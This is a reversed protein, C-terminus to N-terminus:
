HIRELARWAVVLLNTDSVDAGRGIGSAVVDNRESSMADSSSGTRSSTRASAV